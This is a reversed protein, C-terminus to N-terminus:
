EWEGTYPNYRCKGPKSLIDDSDTLYVRCDTCIYRFECDKCVKIQDKHIKWLDQFGPQSIADLVKTTKIHGYSKQSSPCNKINGHVDIGVKKNLCTNFSQAESFTGLNISFYGPHVQGCAASSELKQQFFIINWTPTEITKNQPASHILIDSIRKHKACLRELEEVVLGEDFKIVIQISRLRGYLTPELVQDLQAPSLTTYFRLELAKCALDDLQAFIREFDHQSSEDIDVIANTIREPREFHLDIDPFNGPDEDVWFGLENELLYTFGAEIEASTHNKYLSKIEKVTKGKHLTLMDYLDNSILYYEGRQLDCITSRLAGRVPINCAFLIFVKDEM